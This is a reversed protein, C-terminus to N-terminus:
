LDRPIVNVTSRPRDTEIIRMGIPLSGTILIYILMAGMFMIVLKKLEPSIDYEPLPPPIKPYSSQEKEAKQM